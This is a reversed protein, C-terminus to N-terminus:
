GIVEAAIVELQTTWDEEDDINTYTEVGLVVVSFRVNDGPYLPDFVPCNTDWDGSYALMYHEYANLDSEPASGVVIGMGCFEGYGPQFSVFHEVVGYVTLQEGIYSAPDSAIADLQAASVEPFGAIASGRDGPVSPATPLSPAPEVPQATDASPVPQPVQIPGTASFTLLSFVVITSVIGGLFGLGGLILGTLALGKPQRKVLAVIGLVVGVIGLLLGLIPVWVTVFAAIGLILAAIALGRAPKPAYPPPTPAQALYPPPAPPTPNTM